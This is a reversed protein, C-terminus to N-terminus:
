KSPIYSLLLFTPTKPAEIERDIKETRYVKQQKLLFTKQNTKLYRGNKMVMISLSVSTITTKNETSYGDILKQPQEKAADRYIRQLVKCFRIICNM